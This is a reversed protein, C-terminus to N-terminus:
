VHARGIEVLHCPTASGDGWGGAPSQEGSERLSHSGGVLRWRYVDAALEPRCLGAALLLSLGELMLLFCEFLALSFFVVVASRRCRISPSLSFFLSVIFLSNRGCNDVAIASIKSRGPVRAEREALAAPLVGSGRVPALAAVGGPGEAAAMGEVILRLVATGTAGLLLAAMAGVALLVGSAPGEVSRMAAGFGGAALDSSCM